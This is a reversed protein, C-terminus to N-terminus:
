KNDQTRLANQGLMIAEIFDHEGWDETTIVGILENLYAIAQQTTM